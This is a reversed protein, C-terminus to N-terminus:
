SKELHKKVVKIVVDLVEGISMGSTDIELADKAKMLPAVTRTSDQRDRIELDEQTRSFEKKEGRQLLEKQRRKGREELSATLFFKIDAEPFIVTGIDRGDLVVKGNLGLERQIKFLAQRVEPIASVKSAGQGMESSRIWESIDQGDCFVRSEGDSSRFDISTSAAIRAVVEENGWDIGRNKAKWAIARYIAGTDIYTYGLKQALLKGITSKGAAAPGDIAIILGRKM